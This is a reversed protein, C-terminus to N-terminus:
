YQTARLIHPGTMTFDDVAEKYKVKDTEGMLLKGM